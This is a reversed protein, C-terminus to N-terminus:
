GAEAGLKLTELLSGIVGSRHLSIYIVASNGCVLIALDAASFRRTEDAFALGILLLSGAAIWMMAIPVFPDRGWAVFVLLAYVPALLAVERPLRRQWQRAARAFWGACVAVFLWAFAEIAGRFRERSAVERKEELERQLTPSAERIAEEYRRIAESWDRTSLAIDGLGRLALAAVEGHAFRKYAEAYRVKAVPARHERLALAGLWVLSRGAAETEPWRKALELAATESMPRSRFAFQRQIEALAAMAEQEASAPLLAFLVSFAFWPM